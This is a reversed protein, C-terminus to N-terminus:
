WTIPMKETYLQAKFTGVSTTFTATKPMTTTFPPQKTDQTMVARM